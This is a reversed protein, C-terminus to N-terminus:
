GTQACVQRGCCQHVAVIPEPTVRRRPEFYKWKVPKPTMNYQRACMLKRKLDTVSTFAGRAIVDRGINAFWLGVHNLWSSYTPTFHLQVNSHTALFKDDLASRADDRAHRRPTRRRIPAAERERLV